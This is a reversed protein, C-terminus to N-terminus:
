PSVGLEREIDAMMRHMLGAKRFKEFDEAIAREWLQNDEESIPQGKHALYLAKAEDGREMFM